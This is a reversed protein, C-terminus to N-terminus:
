IAGRKLVKSIENGHRKGQFLDPADSMEGPDFDAIGFRFGREAVQVSYKGQDFLHLSDIRAADFRHRV